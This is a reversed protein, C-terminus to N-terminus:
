AARRLARCFQRNPSRLLLGADVLRAVGPDADIEAVIPVGLLGDVDSADLARGVERVLIVGTASHEVRVARRLALYCLRTVLLSHDVRALLDDELASRASSDSGGGRDQALRGLDIVVDRDDVALIEGLLTARDPEFGGGSGFPIVTLGPAVEVELRGLAAQDPHEAALWDTVGIDPEPAGCAAMADGTLDVLVVEGSRSSSGPRRQDVGALVGALGAAVTTVGAGGKTSWLAVLV